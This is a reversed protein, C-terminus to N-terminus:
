GGHPHTNLPDPGPRNSLRDRILAEIEQSLHLAQHPRLSLGAVSVQLSDAEANLLDLDIKMEAEILARIDGELQHAAEGDLPIDELHVHFDNPQWVEFPCSILNEPDNVVADYKGLNEIPNEDM